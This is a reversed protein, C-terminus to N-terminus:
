PFKRGESKKVEGLCADPEDDDLDLMMM